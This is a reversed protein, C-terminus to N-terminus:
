AKRGIDLDLPGWSTDLTTSRVYRFGTQLMLSAIFDQDFHEYQNMLTHPTSDLVRIDPKTGEHTLGDALSVFMGGPNTANYIKRILSDLKDGAFNFTASAFILDYGEGISDQLYDGGLVEMRDTMEYEKIFEGAAKVVSPRDFVVGKMSPHAAVIAIGVLGPGGGLDLMKSFTPFEPLGSIIAAMQQAIGGRESNAMSTAVQGWFEESAVDETEALPRPGEKILKPLDDLAPQWMKQTLKYMWGLDAESDAVLFAQAVPTNQYLGNKKRVLDIAALSDLFLRTNSPHGSIAAAVKDASVPRSLHNFIGLEIGALLLKPPIQGVFMRYLNASSVELEPLEKM